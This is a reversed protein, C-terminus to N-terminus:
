EIMKLHAIGVIQEKKMDKVHVKYTSRGVKEKVIAVHGAFRRFPLGSQYRGNPKIVVKDGAKLEQLLREVSLKIGKMGRTNARRGKAAKNAM